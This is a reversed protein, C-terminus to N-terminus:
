VHEGQVDVRSAGPAASLILDEQGDVAQTGGSVPSREDRM